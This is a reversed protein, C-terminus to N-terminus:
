DVDPRGSRVLRQHVIDVGDLRADVADVLHADVELLLGLRREGDVDLLQQIFEVALPLINALLHSSWFVNSAQTQPKIGATRLSTSVLQKLTMPTACYTGNAFFLECM